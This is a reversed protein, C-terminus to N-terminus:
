SGAPMYAWGLYRPYRLKNRVVKLANPYYYDNYPDELGFGRYYIMMRVRPRLNMWHFMQRAFTVNDSGVVGWETMAVPKGRWPKGKMFKKLDRWYPYNSYFDTGAWDVFNAGPWYNGPWNGRARPSGAPLPSWVISVPPTPLATKPPSLGFNVPPMGLPALKKDIRTTPM